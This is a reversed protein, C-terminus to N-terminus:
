HLSDQAWGSFQGDIRWVAQLQYSSFGNAKAKVRSRYVQRGVM